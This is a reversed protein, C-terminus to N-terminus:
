RDRRNENEPSRMTWPRRSKGSSTATRVLRFSFKEFKPNPIEATANVTEFQSHKM